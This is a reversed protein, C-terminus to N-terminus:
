GETTICGKYSCAISYLASGDDKRTIKLKILPLTIKLKPITKGAMTRHYMNIQKPMDKTRARRKSRTRTRTNPRKRLRKGTIEDTRTRSKKSRSTYLRSM